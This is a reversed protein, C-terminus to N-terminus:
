KVSVKSIWTGVEVQYELIGLKHLEIVFSMLANHTVYVGRETLKSMLEAISMGRPSFSVIDRLMQPTIVSNSM